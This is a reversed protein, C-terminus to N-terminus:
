VFIEPYVKCLMEKNTVFLNTKQKETLNIKAPENNNKFPQNIQWTRFQEHHAAEFTLLTTAFIAEEVNKLVSDIKMSKVHQNEYKTNDFIDDTYSLGISDLITRLEKFKDKFMDEYRITYLNLYKKQNKLNIFKSLTKMYSDIDHDGPINNKFRNNLSSFVYAPNRIIFIKIYDKYKESFFDITWPFKCIVYKKLSTTQTIIDTENIIEEVEDIHGIISKLISTGCHPFGFIIIKKM